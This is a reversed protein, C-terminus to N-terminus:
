LFQINGLSAVEYIHDSNVNIPQGSAEILVESYEKVLRDSTMYIPHTDSVYKFESNFQIPDLPDLLSMKIASIVPIFSNDNSKKNFSFSGVFSVDAILQSLGLSITFSTHIKKLNEELDWFMESNDWTLFIRFKPNKLLEFEIQTRNDINFFSTKTNLLNFAMTVKNVPNLIQVGIGAKDPALLDALPIQGTKFKGIGTDREIGLMAGIIGILATRTPISYTLPSTTTNFKRFHGYEGGIDFVLVHDSQM